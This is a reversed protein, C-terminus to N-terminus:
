DNHCFRVARKFYTDYKYHHDDLGFVVNSHAPYRVDFRYGQHKNAMDEAFQNAEDITNFEEEIRENKSIFGNVQYKNSMIEGSVL